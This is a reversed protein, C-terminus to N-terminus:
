YTSKKRQNYLYQEQKKTMYAGEHKSQFGLEKCRRSMQKESTVTEGLGEHFFPFVKETFTKEKRRIGIQKESVVNCDPCNVPDKYNSLPLAEEFVESCNPCKYEYLPM